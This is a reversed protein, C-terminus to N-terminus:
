RPLPTPAGCRTAKVYGDAEARVRDPLACLEGMATADGDLYARWFRITEAQVLAMQAPDSPKLRGEVQRRGSFIMHDGGHLVVLYQDAGRIVQYPLTREWPTKELDLQTSDETGTFHLIPTHVGALAQAPDQNRPKNPSYVIAAKIRPERFRDDPVAPVAQGLAVLTSLAGFSHGSMGLRSLDFRGAYPGGATEGDLARVAFRLDQFRQAAADPDLKIQGAELAALGGAGRWIASDSGAHQIAAVAFGAKAVAELIYTSADRTGGLGHSHIITAAAGGGAPLYLKYPVVRGKRDPDAWEGYVVQIEGAASAPLAGALAAGVLGTLVIRRDPRILAPRVPM